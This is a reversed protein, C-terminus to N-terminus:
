LSTIPWVNKLVLSRTFSYESMAFIHIDYIVKSTIQRDSKQHFLPMRPLYGKTISEGQDFSDPAFQVPRRSDLNVAFGRRRRLIIFGGYRALMGEKQTIQTGPRQEWANVKRCVAERSGKMSGM